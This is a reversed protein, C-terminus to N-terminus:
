NNIIFNRYHLKYTELWLCSRCSSYRILGLCSPLPWTAVLTGGFVETAYIYPRSRDMCSHIAIFHDPFSWTVVSKLQDIGWRDREKGPWRLQISQNIPKKTISHTTLLSMVHKIAMNIAFSINEAKLIKSNDLALPTYSYHSFILLVM